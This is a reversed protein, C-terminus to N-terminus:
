GPDCSVQWSLEDSRAIDRDVSSEAGEGGEGARRDLRPQKFVRSEAQVNFLFGIDSLEHLRVKVAIELDDEFEQVPVRHTVKWEQQVLAKRVRGSSVSRRCGDRM